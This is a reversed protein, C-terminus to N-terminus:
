AMVGAIPDHRGARAAGFRGSVVALGRAATPLLGANPFTTAYAANAALVDAFAELDISM